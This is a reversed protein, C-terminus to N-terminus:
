VVIELPAAIVFPAFRVVAMVLPAFRAVAEAEEVWAVVVEHWLAEQAVGFCM